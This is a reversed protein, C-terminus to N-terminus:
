EAKESKKDSPKTVKNEAPVAGRKAAIAANHAEAASPEPAKGGKVLGLAMADAMPMPVGKVALQITRGDDTTETVDEAPVFQEANNSLDSKM